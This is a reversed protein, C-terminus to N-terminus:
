QLNVSKVIPPASEGGETDVLSFELTTDGGGLLPPVAKVTLPLTLGYATSIDGVAYDYVGAIVPVRMRVAHVKGTDDHFTISGTIPYV